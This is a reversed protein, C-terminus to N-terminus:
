FQNTMSKPDPGAPERLIWYSSAGPEWRLRLADKSLLRMLLAVPTVVLYFLAAMVLPNVIRALLLGLNTWVRNAPHLLSPRLLTLLLIAGSLALAWVRIPQRHRLPLCSVIAFFATFVWGFSRDSPVKGSSRPTYDEHTSV